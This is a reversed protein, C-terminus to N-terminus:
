VEKLCLSLPLIFRHPLEMNVKSLFDLSNVTEVQIGLSDHLMKQILLLKPHDGTLFIKTVEKEGQNM